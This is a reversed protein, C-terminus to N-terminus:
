NRSTWNIDGRSGTMDTMHVIVFFLTKVQVITELARDYCHQEFNM